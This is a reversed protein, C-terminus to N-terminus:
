AAAPPHGTGYVADAFMRRVEAELARTLTKRDAHDSLRQVQGASVTVDIPGGRLVGWFHPLLDMDGYWAYRARGQRGIPVGHVRTYAIALPQVRMDELESERLVQEAAGVVASKFPLVVNGDGSTGEAFLVIVDGGELRRALLSNVEHAGRKRTRDIFISRHLRSMLGFVPWSSVEQKAVFSLPALSGIVVIDLWSVHNAVVLLPGPLALAGRAAIRLGLIRCFLRFYFRPIAAWRSPVLRIAVIQAGICAFTVVIIATALLIARLVTM